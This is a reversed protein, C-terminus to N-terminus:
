GKMEGFSIEFTDNVSMKFLGDVHDANSINDWYLIGGSNSLHEATGKKM